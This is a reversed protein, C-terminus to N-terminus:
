TDTAASAAKMKDPASPVVYFLFGLITGDKKATVMLGDNVYYHATTEAWYGTISERVETREAPGFKAKFESLKMGPAYFVSEESFGVKKSTVIVFKWAAMLDFPFLAVSNFNTAM